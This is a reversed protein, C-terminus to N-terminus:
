RTSTRARTARSTYGRDVAKEFIENVQELQATLSAIVDDQKEIVADRARIESDSHLHGNIFQYVVWFLVVAAGGTAILQLVASETM